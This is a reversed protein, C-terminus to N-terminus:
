PSEWPNIDETRKSIISLWPKRWIVSLTITLWQKMVNDNTNNHVCFLITVHIFMEAFLMCAYVTGFLSQTSLVQDVHGGEGGMQNAEDQGGWSWWEM